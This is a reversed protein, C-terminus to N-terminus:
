DCISAPFINSSDALMLTTFHDGQNSFFYTVMELEEQLQQRDEQSTIHPCIKERVVQGFTSRVSASSALGSRSRVNEKILAGTMIARLKQDNGLIDESLLQRQNQGIPSFIDPYFDQMQSLYAAERLSGYDCNGEAGAQRCKNLLGNVLQGLAPNRTSNTVLSDRLYLSTMSNYEAQHAEFYTTSNTERTRNWSFAMDALESASPNDSGIRCLRCADQQIQTNSAQDDAVHYSGFCCAECLSAVEPAMGHPHGLTHMMEHFITGKREANSRKNTFLNSSTNLAITPHNQPFTYGQLHEPIDQPCFTAIGLTSTDKGYDFAGCMVRFPNTSDSMTALLIGMDRQREASGGRSSDTLCQIGELLTDQALQQFGSIENCGSVDLQIRDLSTSAGVGQTLLSLARRGVGLLNTVPVLSGQDIRREYCISRNAIGDDYNLNIRSIRKTVHNTSTRIVKKKDNSPTRLEIEQLLEGKEDFYFTKRIPLIHDISILKGNENSITEIKEVRDFLDYHVVTSVMEFEFIRTNSFLSFSKNLQHGVKQGNLLCKFDECHKNEGQAFVVSSFILCLIIQIKFKM